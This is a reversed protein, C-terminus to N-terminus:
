VSAGRRPSLIGNQAFVFECVCIARTIADTLVQDLLDDIPAFVRQSVCDKAYQQELDEVTDGRAMDDAGSQMLKSVSKAAYYASDRQQSPRPSLYTRCGGLDTGVSSATTSTAYQSNWPKSTSRGEGRYESYEENDPLSLLKGIDHSRKPKQMEQKFTMKTQEINPEADRQMQKFPFTGAGTSAVSDYFNALQHVPASNRYYEVSMREPLGSVKSSPMRKESNSSV